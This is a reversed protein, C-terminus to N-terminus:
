INIITQRNLPAGKSEIAEQVKKLVGKPIKVDEKAFSDLYEKLKKEFEKGDKPDDFQKTFHLQSTDEDFRMTIFDFKKEFEQKSM